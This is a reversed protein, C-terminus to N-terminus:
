QIEFNLFFDRMITSLFIMTTMITTLLMSTFIIITISVFVNFILIM